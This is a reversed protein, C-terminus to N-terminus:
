RLRAVCYDFFDRFRELVSDDLIMQLEWLERTMSEDTNASKETKMVKEIQGQLLRRRKVINWPIGLNHNEGDAEWFEVGPRGELGKKIKMFNEKFSLTFDSKSHVALVPCDALILGQVATYGAARGYALREIVTAPLVFANSLFGYRKQAMSKMAGLAEYYASVSLIGKLSYNKLCSVADAAYGGWSHGYLFVPMDRFEPAAKIHDLAAGTDIMHQPLGLIRSGGSRGIGSGDFLAVSYGARALYEAQPLYPELNWAWGHVILILGKQEGEYHLCVGFLSDEGSPFSFTDAKLEPFRSFFFEYFGTAEKGRVYFAKRYEIYSAIYFVIALLVLVIIIIIVPVPMHM